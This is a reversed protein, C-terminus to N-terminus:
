GFTSGEIIMHDEDLSDQEDETVDDEKSHESFSSEASPFDVDEQSLPRSEVTISELLARQEQVRQIVGPMRIIPEHQVKIEDKM